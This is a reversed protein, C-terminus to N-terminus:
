PLVEFLRALPQSDPMRLDMLLRLRPPAEKSLLEFRLGRNEPCGVGCGRVDDLV